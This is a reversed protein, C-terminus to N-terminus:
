CSSKLTSRQHRATTQRKPRVHSFTKENSRYSQYEFFGQRSARHTSGANLSSTACSPISPVEGAKRKRGNHAADSGTALTGCAALGAEDANAPSKGIEEHVEQVAYTAAAKRLELLAALRDDHGSNYMCGSRPEAYSKAEPSQTVRYLVRHSQRRPTAKRRIM